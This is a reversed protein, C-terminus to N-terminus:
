GASRGRRLLQTPRLRALRRADEPSLFALLGVVMAPGFFGLELFLDLGLHLAIGLLVAWRRTRPWLLLFPLGLEVVLTGWTMAKVPWASSTFFAPAEFRRLHEIELAHYVATGEQWEDGRIKELGTTFYILVMQLRILLIPWRPIIGFGDRKSRGPRPWAGQADSPTVLAFVALFLGLLRMVSDAGIAWAGAYDALSIQLVAALPVTLRPAKGFAIAVASVILGALGIALARPHGLYRFLSFLEWKVFYPERTLGSSGFILDFDPVLSIAWAAVLIGYASRTVVFPAADIPKLWFREFEDFSLRSRLASGRGVEPAAAHIDAQGSEDAQISTV